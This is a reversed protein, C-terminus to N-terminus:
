VPRIVVGSSVVAYDVGLDRGLSKYDIYYRITEPINGYLGEDVMLRALQELTEEDDLSGPFYYVEMDQLHDICWDYTYGYEMYAAIKDKDDDDMIYWDTYDDFLEKLTKDNNPNNFVDDLLKEWVSEEVEDEYEADDITLWEYIPLEEWDDPLGYKKLKKVKKKVDEWKGTFDLYEINVDEDDNLYVHLEM